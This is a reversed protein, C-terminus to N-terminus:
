IFKTQHIYHHFGLNLEPYSINNSFLIDNSTELIRKKNNNELKYVIPVYEEFLNTM